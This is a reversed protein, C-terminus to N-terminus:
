KQLILKRTESFVGAQIKYFYLGSPLGKPQWTIAYEGAPQFENVLTAIEQGVLNYIKLTIDSSKILKYKIRTSPNFPNPYNQYLKFDLPVSHANYEKINTEIIKTHLEFYNWIEDTASIGYKDYVPWDHMCTEITYLVIDGKGGPTAWKQGVIGNENKITDPIPNCENKEIWIALASDVPPLTIHPKVEGEYPYTTDALGHFHIIPVPYEPDCYEYLM